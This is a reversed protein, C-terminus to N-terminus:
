FEDKWNPILTSNKLMEIEKQYPPKDGIYPTELIFPKGQLLPHQIIKIIAEKGLYGLGLKEHRDKHSCSPNKTDNLHIAKLKELGIKLDFEQLVADLNERIDYGADFVHCTDLCVALHSADNVSELIMKLEDFTRGVESGKGAMTELLITTNKAHPLIKNLASVIYDIGIGVGQKLHSGPHFNLYNGPLKEMLELQQKGSLKPLSATNIGTIEVRNRAMTIGGSNIYHSSDNM